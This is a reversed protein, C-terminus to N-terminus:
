RVLIARGVAVTGQLETKFDAMMGDATLEGRVAFQAGWTANLVQGEFRSGTAQVTFVLEEGDFLEGVGMIAQASQVLRLRVYMWFDNQTSDAYSTHQAIV